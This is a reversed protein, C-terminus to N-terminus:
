QELTTYSQQSMTLNCSFYAVPREEQIICTGLQFDSANTHISFWKIITQVLEPILLRMTCISEANSQGHLLNAFRLDIWSLSIHAVRRCTRYYNVYGIFMCLETANCPWDMHLIADINEKELTYVDHCLGNDLGTLRESPWTFPGITFGNKCLWRLITALLKVHHNWDSSFSVLMMKYMVEYYWIFKYPNM